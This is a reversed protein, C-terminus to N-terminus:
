LDDLTTYLLEGSTQWRAYEPLDPDEFEHPGALEDWGSVDPDKAPMVWVLRERVRAMLEVVAVASRRHVYAQVAIVCSEQVPSLMRPAGADIRLFVDPRRTPVKGYCPVQLSELSDYVVQAPVVRKTQSLM